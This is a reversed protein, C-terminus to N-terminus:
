YIEGASTIMVWKGNRQELSALRSNDPLVSGVRVVYMGTADEILARGNSVHLLKFNSKGPFPQSEADPGKLDAPGEPSTTATTLHDPDLQLKNESEKSSTIAMPSVSFVNRAPWNSLDRTRDGEVTHIGFKEPNLFVYWPFFASVGALVLGTIKLGGDAFFTRKAKKAKPPKASEDAEIDKVDVEPDQPM